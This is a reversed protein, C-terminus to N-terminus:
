NPAFTEFKEGKCIIIDSYTEEQSLDIIEYKKLVLLSYFKQVSHKRGTKRTLEFFGVNDHKNFSKNLLSVMTKARKNLNKSPDSITEDFLNEEDDNRNTTTNTNEKNLSSNIISRKHHRKRHSANPSITNKHKKDGGITEDDDDTEDGVDLQQKNQKDGVGPTVELSMQNPLDDLLMDELNANSNFMSLPGGLQDFEDLDNVGSKNVNQHNNLHKSSDNDIMSDVLPLLSKSAENMSAEISMDHGFSNNVIISTIPNIQNAIEKAHSKDLNKTSNTLDALNKTIM